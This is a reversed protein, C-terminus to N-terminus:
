LSRPLYRPPIETPPSKVRTEYVDYFAHMRCGCGLYLPRVRATHLKYRRSHLKVDSIYIRGLCIKHFIYYPFIFEERGAMSTIHIAERYELKQM